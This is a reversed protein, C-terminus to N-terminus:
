VLQYFEEYDRAISKIQERTLQHTGEEEGDREDAMFIKVAPWKYSLVRDRKEWNWASSNM